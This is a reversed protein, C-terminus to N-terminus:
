MIKAPEPTEQDPTANPEDFERIQEAVNPKVNLAPLKAKDDTQDTEFSNNQNQVAYKNADQQSRTEDDVMGENSKRCLVFVVVSAAVMVLIAGAIILMTEEEIPFEDDDDDDNDIAELELEPIPDEVVEVDFGESNEETDPTYAVTEDSTFTVTSSALARRKDSVDSDILSAPDMNNINDVTLDSLTAASEQAGNFGIFTDCIYNCKQDSVCDAPLSIVIGYKNSEAQMDSVDDIAAEVTDMEQSITKIKEEDMEVVADEYKELKTTLAKNQKTLKSIRGTQLYFEGSKKTENLYLFCASQLRTCAKSNIMVNYAGNSQAIFKSWNADCTACIMGSQYKFLAEFCRKQQKFLEKRQGVM